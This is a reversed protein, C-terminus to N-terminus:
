SMAKAPIIPPATRAAVTGEVACQAQVLALRRSDTAVLGIRDGNLELLLGGLAYRTSEPDTAFITRRIMERLTKGSSVMCDSGAVDAVDPFEAPNEVPMRFESSGSRVWIADPLLELSIREDRLERLIATVRSTPLLIEGTGDAEVESVSYRISVEQDTGILVTGGPAVVLKANQLIPKPTRARIVSGVVVLAAELAARNCNLKM